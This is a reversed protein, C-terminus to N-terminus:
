NVLSKAVKPGDLNHGGNVGLKYWFCNVKLKLKRAGPLDWVIYKMNSNLM